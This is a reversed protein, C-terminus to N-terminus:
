KCPFNAQSRTITIITSSVCSCVRHCVHVSRCACTCTSLYWLMHKSAHWLCTYVCLISTCMACIQVSKNLISLCIWGCIIYVGYICIQDCLFTSGFIHFCAYLACLDLCIYPGASHVTFLFLSTNWSLTCLLTANCDDWELTLLGARRGWKHNGLSSLSM